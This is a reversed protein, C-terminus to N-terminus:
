RLLTKKNKWCWKMKIKSLVLTKLLDLYQKLERNLNESKKRMVLTPTFPNRKNPRAAVSLSHLDLILKLIRSCKDQRCPRRFLRRGKSQDMLVLVWDKFSVKLYFMRYKISDWGIRLNKMVELSSKLRISYSNSSILLCWRRSNQHIWLWDRQALCTKLQTRWM